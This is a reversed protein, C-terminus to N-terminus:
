LAPPTECSGFSIRRGASRFPIGKGFWCGASISAPLLRRDDLEQETLFLTYEGGPALELLLAFEEESFYLRRGEKM